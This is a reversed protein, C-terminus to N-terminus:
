VYRYRGETCKEYASNLACMEEGETIYMDLEDRYVWAVYDLLHQDNKLRALIDAADCEALLELIAERDWTLRTEDYAAYLEMETLEFEMDTGNVNRTIKM